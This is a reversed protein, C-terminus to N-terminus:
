TPRFLKHQAENMTLRVQLNFMTNLIPPMAVM